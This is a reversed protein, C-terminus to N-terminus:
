QLEVEALGGGAGHWADVHVEVRTVGRGALPLTRAAPGAIDAGLGAALGADLGRPARAPLTSIAENLAHRGRLLRVRIRAVGRLPQATVPQVLTIARVDRPPALDITLAGVSRDPLLWATAPDGDVARAPGFFDSAALTATATATPAHPRYLAVACVAVLGCWAAVGRRVLRARRADPTEAARLWRHEARRRARLLPLVLADRSAADLHEAGRAAELWRAADAEAPSAAPRMSSDSQPTTSAATRTAAPLATASGATASLTRALADGPRPRAGGRAGRLWLVEAAAHAQRAQAIADRADPTPM